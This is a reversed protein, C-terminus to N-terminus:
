LGLAHVLQSQVLTVFPGGGGLGAGPQESSQGELAEMSFYSQDM